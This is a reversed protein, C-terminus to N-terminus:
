KFLIISELPAFLIKILQILQFHERFYYMIESVVFMSCYVIMYPKTSVNRQKMYYIECGVILVYVLAIIIM